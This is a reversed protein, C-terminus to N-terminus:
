QPVVRKLPEKWNRREQVADRLWASIPPGSPNHVRLEPVFDDRVNLFRCLDRFGEAPSSFFDEFVVVRVREQVPQARFFRNYSFAAVILVVVAVALGAQVRRSQIWSRVREM